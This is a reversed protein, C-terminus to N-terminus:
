LGPALALAKYGPFLYENNIINHNHVKHNCYNTSAITIGTRM